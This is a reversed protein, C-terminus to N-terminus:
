HSGLSALSQLEYFTLRHGFRAGICHNGDATPVSWIVEAEHQLPRQLWLAELTVSLRKRPQLAQRLLLRLGGESVDLLGLALNPGMGLRDLRCVVKTTRKPRRRTNARRNVLPVPNDM